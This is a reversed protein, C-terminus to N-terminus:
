LLRRHVVKGILCGMKLLALAVKLFPAAKSLFARAKEGPMKIVIPEHLCEGTVQCLM